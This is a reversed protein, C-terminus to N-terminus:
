LAVPTCRLLVARPVTDPMAIVVCGIPVVVRLMFTALIMFWWGVADWCQSSRSYFSVHFHFVTLVVQVISLIHLALIALSAALYGKSIQLAIRM